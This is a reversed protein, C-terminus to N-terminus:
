FTFISELIALLRGTFRIYIPGHWSSIRHIIILMVMAGMNGKLDQM